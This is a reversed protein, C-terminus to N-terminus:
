FKARRVSMFISSACLQLRLFSLNFQIIHKGAVAGVFQMAKSTEVTGEAVPDYLMPNTPSAGERSM